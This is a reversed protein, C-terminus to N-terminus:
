GGSGAGTTTPSAVTTPSASTTPPTTTPAGTPAPGPATTSPAVTVPPVTTTAAGTTPTASPGNSRSGGSRSGTGGGRITYSIRREPDAQALISYRADLLAFVARALHEAGRATFHVGDDIRVRVPDGDADPLTDTYRGDADAFLRYADVYVVRPSRREAEERMVRNLEVVGDDRSESRMPPAGIWLVVRDDGLLLDMMRAVDDRYGPEWDPVGDRDADHSGVVSADNTGVMFVVVEPDTEPLAEAAYEPWDRVDSALGSSVKYDVATRVVGTSQTLEGLAPGLAGALSDGGLWLRLPQDHSLARPPDDPIVASLEPLSAVDGFRSGSRAVAVGGGTTATDESSAFAAVAAAGGLVSVAFGVAGWQLRRRRRAELRARRSALLDDDSM